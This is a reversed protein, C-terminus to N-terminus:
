ATYGGDLFQIFGKCFILLEEKTSNWKMMNALSCIVQINDKTYGLEPTIRDISPSYKKDGLIFPTKFIPCVEPIVIDELTLTFPLNKKVARARAYKWLYKELNEKKTRNYWDSSWKAQKEKNNNRYTRNNELVKEKNELYYNKHYQKVREPNDRAWQKAVENREEKSKM